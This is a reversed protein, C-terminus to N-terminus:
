GQAFSELVEDVSCKSTILFNVPYLEVSKYNKFIVNMNERAERFIVTGGKHSIEIAYNRFAKLVKDRLPLPTNEPTPRVAKLNDRYLLVIHEITKEVRYKVWNRGANRFVGHLLTANITEFDSEVTIASPVAKPKVSGVILVGLALVRVDVLLAIVTFM